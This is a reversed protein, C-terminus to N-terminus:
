WENGITVNAGICWNFRQDYKQTIETYFNEATLKYCNLTLYAYPMITLHKTSLEWKAGLQVNTLGISGDTWVDEYRSYTGKWPTLGAKVDLGFGLPLPLELGLQAYSSYARKLQGNQMYGDGGWLTTYWDVSLPLFEILDGFHIGVHGEITSRYANEELTMDCNEDLFKEGNFYYMHTLGIALGFNNFGVSLDMEPNLNQFKWNDAGLNWWGEVYLGKWGIYLDPQLSLGGLNFGRWLYHSVVDCGLSWEWGKSDANSEDDEAMLPMVGSCLVALAVLLHKRM